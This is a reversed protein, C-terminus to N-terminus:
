VNINIFIEHSNPLLIQLEPQKGILSLFLLHSVVTEVIEFYKEAILNMCSLLAGKETM